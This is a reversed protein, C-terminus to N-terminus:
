IENEKIQRLSLVTRHRVIYYAVARLLLNRSAGDNVKEQLVVMPDTTRIVVADEPAISVRDMLEIGRRNGGKTIKTRRLVPKAIPAKM